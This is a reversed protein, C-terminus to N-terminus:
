AGALGDKRRRRMGIGALIILGAGFLLLSAPEPLVTGYTGEEPFGFGGAAFGYNIFSGEGAPDGIFLIGADSPGGLATFEVFGDLTVPNPDAQIPTSFTFDDVVLYSSVFSWSTVQNQDIFFISDFTTISPTDPTTTFLYKGDCILGSCPAILTARAEHTQGFAAFSIFLAFIYTAFKPM